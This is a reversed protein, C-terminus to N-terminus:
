SNTKVPFGNLRLFIKFYFLEEPTLLAKLIVPIKLSSDSKDTGAMPPISNAGQM